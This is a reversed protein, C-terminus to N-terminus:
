HGQVIRAPIGRTLRDFEATSSGRGGSDLRMRVAARVTAVAHGIVLLDVDQHHVVQGFFEQDVLGDEFAQSLVHDRRARSPLRESIRSSRSNATMRSSTWMGSISPKSVAEIIRLRRWVAWVGIM